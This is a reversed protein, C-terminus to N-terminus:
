NARGTELAILEPSVQQPDAGAALYALAVMADACCVGSSQSANVLL